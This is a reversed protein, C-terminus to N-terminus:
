IVTARRSIPYGWYKIVASATLCILSLPAAGCKHLCCPGYREYRPKPMPVERGVAAEMPRLTCTKRRKKVVVARATPDNM